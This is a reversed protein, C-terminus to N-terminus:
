KKRVVSASAMAVLGSKFVNNTSNKPEVCSEYSSSYMDMSISRDMYEDDEYANPAIALQKEVDLVTFLGMEGDGKYAVDFQEIMKDIQPTVRFITFDIGRSAFQKMQRKPDRGQPDGRPYRDGMTIVHYDTGHAPADAVFFITKVQGQWDLESVKELAGAVDEPVDEGGYASITSIQDRVSTINETFPFVVLQEKDGFDRYAVFSLRFVCDPHMTRLTDFAELVTERSAYLYSRMSLTVDMCICVDVKTKEVKSEGTQNQVIEGPQNQDIEGPQNQVIEGPQSM